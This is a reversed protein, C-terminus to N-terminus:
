LAVDLAFRAPERLVPWDTQVGTAASSTPVISGAAFCFGNRTIPATRAADTVHM